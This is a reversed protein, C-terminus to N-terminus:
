VLLWMLSLNCHLWAPNQYVLSSPIVIILGPDSLLMSWLSLYLCPFLADSQVYTVYIIPALDPYILSTLQSLTNYLTVGLDHVSTLFTFQPFQAALLAFDLLNLLNLLYSLTIPVLDYSVDLLRSRLSFTVCFMLHVNHSQNSCSEILRM